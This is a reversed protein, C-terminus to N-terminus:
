EMWQKCWIHTSSTSRTDSAQYLSILCIFFFGSPKKDYLDSIPYFIFFVKKKINIKPFKVDASGPLHLFYKKERWNTMKRRRCIRSGLLLFVRKNGWHWPRRNRLGLFLLFTTQRADCRWKVRCSMLLKITKETLQTRRWVTSTAKLRWTMGSIQHTM